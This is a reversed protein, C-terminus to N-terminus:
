PRSVTYSVSQGRTEEVEARLTRWHPLDKILTCLRDACYRALEESTVNKVPLKLCDSIPFSYFKPGFQVETQGENDKLKLYPSNQPLLIKEDLEDCIM